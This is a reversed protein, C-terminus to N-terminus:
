SLWGLMAAKLVAATKNTANLKTMANNVHFNVTRESIKLITAIDGSTKGDGAWRLVEVERPSLDVAAEPLCKPVIISSMCLHIVQVLCTIRNAKAQYETLTVPEGSRALTLMGGSGGADRCVQAMGSQLGFSRAEEWLERASAFLNDTWIIPAQAACQAQRVTPDINQYGQALYKDHWVDPYNSLMVTGPRSLPLPMRLGYACYDFELKRAWEAVKAIMQNECNISQLVQLVEENWSDM